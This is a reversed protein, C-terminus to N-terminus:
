EGKVEAFIDHEEAPTEQKEEQTEFVKDQSKKQKWELFEQYKTKKLEVIHLVYRPSKMNADVDQQFIRGSFTMLKQHPLDKVQQFLERQTAKFVIFTLDEWSQTKPNWSNCNLQTFNNAGNTWSNYIKVEKSVFGKKRRGM